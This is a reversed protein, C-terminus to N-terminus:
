QGTYINAAMNMSDVYQAVGGAIQDAVLSLYRDSKLRKEEEPNSIFAIETLIAPMQAGILVVFPARKVGLDKVNKYKKRLGTIMSEQVLEALRLSESVKTNNMLDMLISQLDSLQRASSANELAAVRMAEKNTTLDLVYTEIGNAEQTPAANVHISLFIDGEKSNAIATREELPIFVDKDRTLVVECGITKRLRSAVKKSVALVIDKEKLNRNNTGPDKGGHGPDIVIRGVGLGLQRVLSLAENSHTTNTSKADASMVDIVVRFPDELSFIKYDSINAQTDLVVRVTDPAFQGSRVQSLLGDGIPITDVIQDLRSNLLDIYLRRPRKDNRELVKHKFQIPGSTEMVVRTYRKSSWYRIPLVTALPGSPREKAGALKPRKKIIRPEITKFSKAVKSKTKPKPQQGRLRQLQSSASQAMDGDPYLAVIKAFTKGAKQEDDKDELYIRGMAYLADDALRHTHYLTVIDEYYAISEGLDLPNQSRKYMHHYIKGLMFLSRPAVELKPYDKYLRRFAKVCTLWNKREKGRETSILNQYYHKAQRYQKTIIADDPHRAHALGHVAVLFLILSIIKTIAAFRNM